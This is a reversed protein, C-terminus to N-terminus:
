DAVTLRVIDGADTLSELRWLSELLQDARAQAMTGQALKRFKQEVELESMPNKWHGQHYDVEASHAAGSRTLVTVRCLM